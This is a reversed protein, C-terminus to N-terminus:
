VDKKLLWRSITKLYENTDASFLQFVFGSIGRRQKKDYESYDILNPSIVFPKDSKTTHYLIDSPRIINFFHLLDYNGYDIQEDTLRIDAKMGIEELCKATQIIQETDGGPVKYLTSRTILAVKM